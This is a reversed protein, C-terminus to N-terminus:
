YHPPKEDEPSYATPAQQVAGFRDKLSEVQRKLADIERQQRFIVEGLQANSEELYALKVEVQELRDTM